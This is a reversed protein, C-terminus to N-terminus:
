SLYQSMTKATFNVLPLIKTYPMRTPGIVGLAGIDKGRHYCATVVSFASLRKDTNESGITLATERVRRRFLTALKSRDDVLSLIREMMTYDSFEPQMLINQTGCTHVELPESFDFIHGGHDVIYQILKRDGRVSNRLRQKVSNQIEELTLGSLRENVESATKEMNQPDIDWDIELIVTKVLRSQVHIVALLKREALEILELRDFIGWSIWPTLVVSLEQSIMGLIKTVEELLRKVDRGANAMRQHIQEKEDRSLHNSKMLTDVYIRYGADTPIRGASTHPQRIYGMDELSAMENRVTAPSCNLRYEKVLHSSAVPSATGIYSKVVYRLLQKKRTSLEHM